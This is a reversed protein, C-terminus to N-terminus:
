FQFRTSLVLTEEADLRPSAVEQHIPLQLGAELIWRPMIWQIGPSVFVQRSGDTLFRANIEGVAYLGWPGITGGEGSWLRLSLATDARVQDEGAAGGATNLKYVLDADLWWRPRQRTWVVGVIPDFSESSLRDDYSPLEAGVLAAWRTTRGPQDDQFFRYKVLVGLDGVGSADDGAGSGFRVKRRIVPLTGLLTLNATLGHVLTIPVVGMEVHRGLPTPDDVTESQRWQVRIITGGEPPTLAVDTNLGAAMVAGGAALLAVAVNPFRIRSGNMEIKGKRGCCRM